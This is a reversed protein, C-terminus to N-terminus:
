DGFSELDTYGLFKRKASKITGTVGLVKIIVNINSIKTVFALAARVYELKDHACRIVGYKNKYDYLNKILKIECMSVGLEGLFSLSAFWIARSLDEYNFDGESIVEFVIYRKKGRLTPPLIKPKDTMRM